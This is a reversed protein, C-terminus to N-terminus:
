GDQKAGALMTLDPSLLIFDRALQNLSDTSGSTIHVGYRSIEAKEPRPLNSYANPYLVVNFDGIQEPKLHDIYIAFFPNNQDFDVQLEYSSNQSNLFDRIATLAPIIQADLKKKAHGYSVEVTKSNLTLNGNIGDTAENAFAGEPDVSLMITFTKDIEVQARRVERYDIRIPFRFRKSDDLFALLRELTDTDYDGDFRAGISWKTVADSHWWIRLRQFIFYIRLSKRSANALLAATLGVFSAVNATLAPVSFNSKLNAISAIVLIVLLILYVVLM